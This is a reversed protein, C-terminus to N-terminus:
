FYHFSCLSFSTFVDNVKSDAPIMEASEEVAMWALSKTMLPTISPGNLPPTGFATSSKTTLSM